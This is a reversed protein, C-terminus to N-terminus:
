VLRAWITTLDTTLDTTPDTTLDTPPSAFAPIVITVDDATFPSAAPEPMPHLAGAEVFRDLFQRVAATEPAEGAEVQAIVHAGGPSLRFLRLPSGAIVLQGAGPQGAGPRRWTPDLRFRTM